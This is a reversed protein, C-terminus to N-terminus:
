SHGHSASQILEQCKWMFSNFYCFESVYTKPLPQNIEIFQHISSM